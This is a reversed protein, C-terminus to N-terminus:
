IIMAVTSEDEKPAWHLVQDVNDEEKGSASCDDIFDVDLLNLDLRPSVLDERGAPIFHDQLLRRQGTTGVPNLVSVHERELADFAADFLCVPSLMIVTITAGIQTNQATTKCLVRRM